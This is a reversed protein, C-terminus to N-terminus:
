RLWGLFKKIDNFFIRPNHLYVNSRAKARELIRMVSKNYNHFVDKAENEMTTFNEYDMTDVRRKVDKLYYDSPIHTFFIKM